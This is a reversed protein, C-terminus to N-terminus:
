RLLGSHECLSGKAMNPFHPYKPSFIALYKVKNWFLQGRSDSFAVSKHATSSSDFLQWKELQGSSGESQTLRKELLLIQIKLMKFDVLTSGTRPMIGLPM